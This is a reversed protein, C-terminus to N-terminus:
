RQTESNRTHGMLLDVSVKVTSLFNVLDPPTTGPVDTLVSDVM